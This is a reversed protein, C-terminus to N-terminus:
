SPPSLLPGDGGTARADARTQRGEETKKKEGARHVGGPRADAGRGRRGWVDAAAGGRGADGGGGGGGGKSRGGSSSTSSSTTTTTAAVAATEATAAAALPGTRAHPSAPMCTLSLGLRCRWVCARVCLTVCVSVEEIKRRDLDLPVVYLEGRRVFAAWRGDPSAHPDIAGGAEEEEKPAAAADAAAAAEVSGEEDEEEAEEADHFEEESGEEISASGPHPRSGSAAAATQANSSHM